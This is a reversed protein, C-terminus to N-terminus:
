QNNPAACSFFVRERKAQRKRVMMQEAVEEMRSELNYVDFKSELLELRTRCFGKVTPSRAIEWVRRIAASHSELPLSTITEIDSEKDGLEVPLIGAREQMFQDRLAICEAILGTVETPFAKHNVPLGRKGASQILNERIEEVKERASDRVNQFDHDSIGDFIDVGCCMKVARQHKMHTSLQAWGHGPTTLSPASKSNEM